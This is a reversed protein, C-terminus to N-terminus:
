TIILWTKFYIPASVRPFLLILSNGGMKIACWCGRTCENHDDYFSLDLSQLWNSNFTSQWKQHLCWKSILIDMLTVSRAVLMTFQYKSNERNQASCLSNKIIRLLHNPIERSSAFFCLTFPTDQNANMWKSAYNVAASRREQKNSYFVVIKIVVQLHHHIIREM